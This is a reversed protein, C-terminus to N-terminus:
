LLSVVCKVNLSPKLCDVALCYIHLTNIFYVVVTVRVVVVVAALTM